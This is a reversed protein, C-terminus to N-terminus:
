MIDAKNLAVEYLIPILDKEAISREIAEDCFRKSPYVYEGTETQYIKLVPLKIEEVRAMDEELEPIEIRPKSM